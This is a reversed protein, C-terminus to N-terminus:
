WQQLLEANDVWMVFFPTEAGRKKMYVLFPGEIHYLSPVPLMYTKAEASVEAGSRDLRFVIEQTAVDIRQGLASPNTISAGLLDSFDHRVKFFIDPVLLEDNIGLGHRDPPVDQSDASAPIQALTEALTDKREVLAVVVQNPASNRCLDIAFMQMKEIGRRFIVRPQARLRQYAYADESRVGFTQIRTEHGECDTFIVPRRSSFYPMSFRVGAELFAYAVLSDAAIDSFRPAQRGPFRTATERAIVALVGEEVWGAKAYCAEPLFDAPDAASNLRHASMSAPELEVPGGVIDEEIRKWAATFAASWIANKGQEIPTDLTPVIQTRSLDRSDGDFSLRLRRGPLLHRPTWGYFIHLYGVTAATSTLLVMVLLGWLAVRIWRRKGGTRHKM